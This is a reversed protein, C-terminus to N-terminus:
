WDEVWLPDILERLKVLGLRVRTKVTGLPLNLRAAIESQSFGWFYALEITERQEPPLLVLAQRLKHRRESDFAREDLGSAASEPQPGPTTLDLQDTQQQATRSARLRDIARSRAITLLWTLFSGRQADYRAAQQWVQWYVDLTVEEAAGAEGLIRYVLSYVLRHTEDYLAALAEERGQVVQGLLTTLISDRARAAETSGSPTGNASSSPVSQFPNM